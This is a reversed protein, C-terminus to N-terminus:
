ADRKSFGFLLFIVASCAALIASLIYVMEVGFNDAILGGIANGAINGIGAYVAVALTTATSKLGEPSTLTLYKMAAPLFIGFSIGQLSQVLIIGWASPMLAPALYKFIYAFFAFILLFKINFKKILWASMLMFPIEFGAQIFLAYGLHEATGGRLELLNSLFSITASSGIFTMSACVVFIVYQRNKLLAFIDKKLTSKKKQAIAGEKVPPIGETKLIFVLCIACAIFHLYFTIEMNVRAFVYGFILATIAYGSSGAARGIGFDVPYKESLKICWCDILSSLCYESAGLIICLLFLTVINKAALPILAVSVSAVAMCAFIIKKIDFVKDSLYGYLPQVLISTTALTAIVFGIVSKSYGVSTLYAVFFGFSFCYAIWFMCQIAGCARNISKIM